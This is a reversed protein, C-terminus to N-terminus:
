SDKTSPILLANSVNNALKSLNSVSFFFSIQWANKLLIELTSFPNQKKWFNNESAPVEKILVKMQPLALLESRTEGISRGCALTDDLLSLHRPLPEERVWRLTDPSIAVPGFQVPRYFDTATALQGRGGEV